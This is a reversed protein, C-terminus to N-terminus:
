QGKEEIGAMFKQNAAVVIPLRSSVRLKSVGTNWLPSAIPKLNLASSVVMIRKM